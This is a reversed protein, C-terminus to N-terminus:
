RDAQVTGRDDFQSTAYNEFDGDQARLSVYSLIM